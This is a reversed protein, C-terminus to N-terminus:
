KNWEDILRQIKAEDIKKSEEDPNEKLEELTPTKSAIGDAPVDIKAVWAIGNLVCKRFSPQAWNYHWHGGTFGFGRGGDPREAVWAVHEAMGKRARVTPNGSHPGDPRDRTSDPPVASLIPTVGEMNERFRMHYYWEDDIAFPKLGNAVPHKPFQTFEATWHPNVSWHMEFYGGIWDLFQQGGREKPVEVAYHLLAVGVGQKAMKDVKDLHPILPNGGGGDSFLVIASAGEFVAEDKPWGNAVVETELGPVAERMWKALLMCGAWHDHGFYGHSPRGALFVIKKKDAKMLNDPKADEKIRINRFEVKMPPGAHLQLAILGMARRQQVDNDVVDVMTQGNISQTIRNGRAVIHFENWGKLDVKKILEDAPGIQGVVKPKHDEGIETKQGREALIGRYREGYLIGTYRGSEDIDAQYGGIVWKGWKDPEEWSRVQIGSNGNRMRYEAKLEFDGPQGGRWILFTNGKTPKEPTTEGVIVGEEIRWFEPNGDWGELTKGDFIPRFGNDGVSVAQSGCCPKPSADSTEGKGRAALAASIAEAAREAVFKNGAANLHVRDSTLIGKEQNDPNNEKLHKRFAAHLDCLPVKTDAAVTRSIAAYEDLLADLSNSGDTKEGIVSPTALVVMSGAARIKEILDRLGAEFKDKPTGHGRESHWVDNIGIYIFVITPKKSLVDRDLRGQLDPVKNGSIGAKIVRAEIDSRKAVAQEILWVYGNPSAGGQTISDGFFAIAEGQKMPGAPDTLKAIPCPTEARALACSMAM